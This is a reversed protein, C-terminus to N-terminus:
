ETEVLIRNDQQLGSWSFHVRDPISCTGGFLPSPPANGVWGGDMEECRVASGGGVLVVLDRELHRVRMLM